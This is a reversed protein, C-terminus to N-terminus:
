ILYLWYLVGHDTTTYFTSFDHSVTSRIPTQVFIDLSFSSARRAGMQASVHQSVTSHPLTQVAADLSSTHVSHFSTQVAVDFSLSSVPQDSTQTSADQSADCPSATQVAVDMLSVPAPLQTPQSPAILLNCRQVFELFSLQTLAEVFSTPMAEGTVNRTPGALVPSSIPGQPLQPGFASGSSTTGNTAQTSVLPHVSTSVTDDHFQQSSHLASLSNGTYYSHNWETTSSPRVNQHEEMQSCLNVFALVLSFHLLLSRHTNACFHSYHQGDHALDCSWVFLQYLACAPFTVSGDHRLWPDPLVLTYLVRYEMKTFPYAVLCSPPSHNVCAEPVRLARAQMVFHCHTRPIVMVALHVWRPHFSYDSLAPLVPAICTLTDQTSVTYGCIGAVCLTGKFSRPGLLNALTVTKFSTYCGHEFHPSNLITLFHSPILHLPINSRFRLCTWPLDAVM